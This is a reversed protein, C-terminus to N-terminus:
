QTRLFIHHPRGACFDRIMRIAVEESNFECAVSPSIYTKQGAQGPPLCSLRPLPQALCIVLLHCRMATAQSLLDMGCRVELLQIFDKVCHHKPIQVVVVSRSAAGRPLTERIQEDYNHEDACPPRSGKWLRETPKGLPEESTQKANM